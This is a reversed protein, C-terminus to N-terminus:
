ETPIENLQEYVTTDVAVEFHLFSSNDETANDNVAVSVSSIDSSIVIDGTDKNYNVTLLM